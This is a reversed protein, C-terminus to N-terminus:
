ASPNEVSKKKWIQTYKHVIDKPRMNISDIYKNRWVKAHEQRILKTPNSRCHPAIHGFIHCNYYEVNHSAIYIGINRISNYKGFTKCHLAKHGYNNCTYWYGHFIWQYSGYNNRM